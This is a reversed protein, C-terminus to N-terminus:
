VPNEEESPEFLIHLTLFPQRNNREGSRIIVGIAHPLLLVDSACLLDSRLEGALEWFAFTLASSAM